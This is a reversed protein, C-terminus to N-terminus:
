EPKRWFEENVAGTITPDEVDQGEIERPLVNTFIDDIRIDIVPDGTPTCNGQQGVVCGNVRYLPRDAPNGGGTIFIKGTLSSAPGTILGGTPNAVAIYLDFNTPGATHYGTITISGTVYGGSTQTAQFGSTNQQLIHGDSSLSLNDVAFLVAHTTNIPLAPRPIIPNIDAPPATTTNLTQDFVTSGLLIDGSSTLNAAQFTLPSTVPGVITTFTATGIAGHDTANSDNIVEILGPTWAGGASSPAGITLAVTNDVAPTLTGTVLVNKQTYLNLATSLQAPLAADGVTIDGGTEFLTVTPARLTATMVTSGAGAADALTLGGPDSLAIADADHGSLAGTPDSFTKAQIFVDSQGSLSFLGSYPSSVASFLTRGAGSSTTAGTTTVPGTLTVAGTAVLVAVDGASASALVVDGGTAQIAVDRGATLAGASVSAGTLAVDGSSANVADVAITGPATVTVDGGAKLTNPSTVTVNGTTVALTLAGAGADVTAGSRLALSRADTLSFGGPGSNTFSDLAAIQNATGAFNAAGASSGTLVATTLVSGAAQTISGGTNTLSVTGAGVDIDGQLGLDPTADVLILAGGNTAFGNVATIQNGTGAFDGAGSSSGSLASTTIVSGAAQTITGASTLSVAGSGANIAGQLGLDSTADVLTLAGGNTAFGNVATIQNATGAFNAAGQSSGTLVATTIVSGTAQTITGGTNTVSVTGAGAVIAGQLGLDSTADVLTFAGGHTAFGNVTAIQNATGAFNAAGQSSGALVATTLVSGAAQTITGGTNTLSVAGSGANVAGQLGLDSTADVVTLAGGNTAFGNIAAIQNATGAFNAAGQSSGTLVATTIVSTAAQTITGASILSIEGSGADIAGQLGLDSTADVLTLAGGNTAFGNIAAIQNATGAFNAAGHSSGSLDSTTLVSTAAQTITGASILSVAGSGANIAGQLGLDSTADV